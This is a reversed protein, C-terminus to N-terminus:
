IKETFVKVIGEIAAELKDLEEVVKKRISAFGTRLEQIGENFEKPPSVTKDKDRFVSNLSVELANSQNDLERLLAEQTQHVRKAQEASNSNPVCISNKLVDLLRVFVGLRSSPYNDKYLKLDRIIQRDDENVASQELVISTVEVKVLSDEQSLRQNAQKSLTGLIQQDVTSLSDVSKVELALTALITEYAMPLLLPYIRTLKRIIDVSDKRAQEAGSALDEIADIFENTLSISITVSKVECPIGNKDMVGSGNPYVFYCQFNRPIVLVEGSEWPMKVYEVEEKGRFMRVCWPEVSRNVFNKINYDGVIESVFLALNRIVTRYSEGVLDRSRFLPNMASTTARLIVLDGGAKAFLKTDHEPWSIYGAEGVAESSLHSYNLACIRWYGDSERIPDECWKLDLVSELSTRIKGSLNRCRRIANKFAFYAALLIVIPIVICGLVPVLNQVVRVNGLLSLPIGLSLASFFFWIEPRFVNIKTSDHWHLGLAIILLSSLALLGCTVMFPRAGLSAIVILLIGLVVFICAALMLGFQSRHIFLVLGVAICWSTIAGVIGPFFLCLWCIGALWLLTKNLGKTEHPDILGMGLFVGRFSLSKPALLHILVVSILLWIICSAGFCLGVWYKREWSPAILTLANFVIALALCWVAPGRFDAVSILLRGLNYDLRDRASSSVNNIM